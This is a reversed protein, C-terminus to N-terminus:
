TIPSFLFTDPASNTRSDFQPHSRNQHASERLDASIAAPGKFSRWVHGVLEQVINGISSSLMGKVKAPFITTPAGIINSVAAPLASDAELTASIREAGARGEFVKKSAVRVFPVDEDAIGLSKDVKGRPATEELVIPPHRGGKRYVRAHPVVVTGRDAFFLVPETM